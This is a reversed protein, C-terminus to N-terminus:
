AATNEDLSQWMHVKAQYGSSTLIAMPEVGFPKFGCAEYLCLASKNGETVTLMLVRADPRTRAHEAAAQILAKGVGLGRCTEAVFMGMVHVKHKTKARNSFELAVTGVLERENFAGFVISEERSGAIRKLWWSDPQAAREELTSTFADPAHEYAHLMLCRYEAAHEATLPAVQM